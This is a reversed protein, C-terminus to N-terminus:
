LCLHKNQDGGKVGGRAGTVDMGDWIRIERVGVTRREREEPDRWNPKQEKYEVSVM